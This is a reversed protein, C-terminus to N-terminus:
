SRVAEMVFGRLHHVDGPQGESALMSDTFLGRAFTNVSAGRDRIRDRLRL